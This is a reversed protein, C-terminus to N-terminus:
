SAAFLGSDTAIEFHGRTEIRAQLFRLVEQQHSPDINNRTQATSLLYEMLRQPNTVFLQNEYHYTEIQEFWEVLQSRGNELSFAAGAEDFSAAFTPMLQRRLRRLEFMHRHGVTSAFLRGNDKLVRRIEAFAKQRDPVHYLMHNAIVVDFEEEGFPLVTIDTEFFRFDHGTKALAEDAESVMGPSLDTLTLQCNDPMRQLNNRWLWGPGCGCELIRQGPRLAIKEMVWTFWGMPNSGYRQHLHARVGLNRSDRYQNSRLFERDQFKSKSDM